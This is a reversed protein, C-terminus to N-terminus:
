LSWSALAADSTPRGATMVEMLVSKPGLGNHALFFARDDREGLFSELLWGGAYGGEYRTWNRSMTEEIKIPQQRFNRRFYTCFRLYWASRIIQRSSSATRATKRQSSRSGAM